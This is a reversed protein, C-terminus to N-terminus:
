CRIGGSVFRRGFNTTPPPTPLALPTVLTLTGIEKLPVSSFIITWV